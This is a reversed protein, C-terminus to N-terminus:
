EYFAVASGDALRNVSVNRSTDVQYYTAIMGDFIDFSIVYNISTYMKNEGSSLTYRALQELDTIYYIEDGVVRLNYADKLEETLLEEQEPQDMAVKWLGDERLIYLQGDAATYASVSGYTHLRQGNVDLSVLEYNGEEQQEWMYIENRCVYLGGCLRDSLKILERGQSHIKYLNHDNYDIFYLWDNVVRLVSPYHDTIMEPEGGEADMSYIGIGLLANEDLNSFYVRGNAANVDEVWVDLLKEKAFSEDKKVRYLKDGDTPNSVYYYEDDEALDHGAEPSIGYKWSEAMSDTSYEKDIDTEKSEREVNAYWPEGEYEVRQGCGTLLTVAVLGAALYKIKM